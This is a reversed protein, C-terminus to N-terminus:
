SSLDSSTSSPMLDIKSSESPATSREPSPTDSDGSARSANKAAASALKDLGCVRVAVEGLPVTTEPDITELVAAAVEDDSGTFVRGGGPEFVTVGILYAQALDVLDLYKEVDGDEKAQAARASLKLFQDRERLRCSRVEVTGVGPVDMTERAGAAAFKAKLDSM